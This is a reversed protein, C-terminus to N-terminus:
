NPIYTKATSPSINVYSISIAGDRQREVEIYEQNLYSGNCAVVLRNPGQWHLDLCTAMAAFVPAKSHYARRLEDASFAHDGILVFYTLGGLAERDSREALIAAHGSSSWQVQKIEFRGKDFFGHFLLYGVVCLIAAVAVMVATSLMLLPRQYWSKM